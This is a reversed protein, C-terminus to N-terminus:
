SSVFFVASTVPRTLAFSPFPPYVSPSLSLYSDFTHEIVALLGRVGKEGRRVECVIRMSTVKEEAEARGEYQAVEVKGKAKTVEVDMKGKATETSVKRESEAVAM